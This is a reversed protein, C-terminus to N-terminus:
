RWEGEIIFAAWHHPESWDGSRWMELQAARLAATITMDKKLLGLYFRKMLEATAEDTINWLSAMVRAAGAYMFGRTLGVLGEGQIEEGLGTSCASLVILDAPLKLNYMEQLRLFGDRPNGQEDVLSLVIGSLEPHKSDILGHTAFHVIRYESLTRSTALAKNAAFGTALISADGGALNLIEEGEQKSYLLRPLTEEGAGRVDRVAQALAAPHNLDSEGEQEAKGSLQNSSPNVRSDNEDFVPDTLIALLKRAPKRRAIQNRLFSIMTASSLYAIEHNLVLPYRRLSGGVNDTKVPLAAFPIYRLAGDAVIILRQKNLMPLVPGLLMDSLRAAVAPYAQDADQIRQLRQQRTEGKKRVYRATLAGYVSRAAIEIDQRKPLAFCKFSDQTIVWLFSKEVGLSYELLTTQPELERQLESVEIPEPQKLAVYHPNNVKIQAYLAQYERNLLELEREMEATEQPTAKRSLLRIGRDVKASILQKYYRDKELLTPDIGEGIEINSENLMDLLARARARESVQFAVRLLDESRTREYARMLLDIYLKYHETVSAFYSMRFEQVAVKTRLSEILEVSRKIHSLAKDWKRLQKETQALKYLALVEGARDHSSEILKLARSYTDLAAPLNGSQSYLDGLSLLTYAQGRRDEIAVYVKLVKEYQALAKIVDHSAAYIIALDKLTYAELRRKGNQQSLAQSRKYHALAQKLMGSQRYTRGLYYQTVAECDLDQLQQCNALAAQYSELAEDVKNLDEYVKGLWNLAVTEAQRNGYARIHQRAQNLLNLAKQKEGLFSYIGGIAIFSQAAGQRDDLEQFLALAKEFHTRAEPLNGSDLHAYGMNIQARAQGQRDKVDSWLHLAQEFLELANKLNGSSYRVEGLNCIAQAKKRLDDPTLPPSQTYFSLVKQALEETKQHTSLHLSIFGLHNLADLETQRDKNAQSIYLAQRYFDQAKNMQSLIFCVEGACLLAEAQNRSHGITQWIEAARAYEKVALQLTEEKWEARALEAKAFARLANIIKRASDTAPEPKNLWLQYSQPEAKSELSRVEIIHKGSQGAYYFLNLPGFRRSIFEDSAAGSPSYITLALNLDSKLIEGKIYSGATLDIEFQHSKGASLLATLTQESVIAQRPTTQEDGKASGLTSTTSTLSFYIIPLLYISPSKARYLRKILNFKM